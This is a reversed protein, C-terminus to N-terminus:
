TFPLLSGIAQVIGTVISIITESHEFLFFAGIIGNLALLASGFLGLNGYVSFIIGLFGFLNVVSEVVFNISLGVLTFVQSATRFNLGFDDFQFGSLTDVEQGPLDEETFGSAQFPALMAVLLVNGFLLTIFLGDIFTGNSSGSM